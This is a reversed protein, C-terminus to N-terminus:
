SVGKISARNMEEIRWLFSQWRAETFCFHRSEQVALARAVIPFDFGHVPDIVAKPGVFNEEIRFNMPACNDYRLMDVPFQGFGQAKAYVVWKYDRHKRDVRALNAIPLEELTGPHGPVRRVMITNGPIVHSMVEGAFSYSGGEAFKSPQTVWVIEYPRFDGAAKRTAYLSKM